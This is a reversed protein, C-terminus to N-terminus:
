DFLNDSTEGVILKIIAAIKSTAYAVDLIVFFSIRENITGFYHCVVNEVIELM